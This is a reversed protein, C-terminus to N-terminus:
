AIIPHEVLPNLCTEMQYPTFNRSNSNIRERQEKLLILGVNRIRKETHLQLVNSITAPQENFNELTKIIGIITQYM